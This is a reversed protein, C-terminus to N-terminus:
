VRNGDAGQWNQGTNGVNRADERVDRAPRRPNAEVGRVSPGHKRYPGSGRRTSSHLRSKDLITWRLAWLAIDNM